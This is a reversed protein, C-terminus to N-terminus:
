VGRSVGKKRISTTKNGNVSETVGDLDMDEDDILPNTHLDDADMTLFRGDKVVFIRDALQKAETFSHTVHLTSVGTEEQIRKLLRCMGDRTGEDLASLPEDLLLVQPYYSLARGLAVRQAEGGSLGFPKRDLLYEIGLLKAMEQVRKIIDAQSWRRLRLAFALHEWVTITPFLARDQPVYGVGREAPKLRAVERGLLKISGSLIPKLGGIAELVTTKGSGTRGMIVGYAGTELTFAVDNLVFTGARLCLDKVVIM